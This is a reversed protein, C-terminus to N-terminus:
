ENITIDIEGEIDMMWVKAKVKVTGPETGPPIVLTTLPMGYSNTVGLYDTVYGEGEVTFVVTANDIGRIYHDGITVYIDCSDGTTGSVSPPLAQMAMEGDIVPLIYYFETEVEGGATSAHIGVCEFSSQSPFTLCARSVGKIRTGELEACPYQGGTYAEPNIFALDSRDLTFYVATGNEVPNNYVDRVIAAVAFTYTGDGNVSGEGVNLLISDPPGAAIGIKTTTAAYDGATISLLITGPKTGGNVGISAMGGGTQKVVPGYGNAPSDLYEGGGPGYEITFTVETGNDVPVAHSDFVYAVINATAGTGTGAVSIWATDPDAVITGAAESLIVIGANACYSGCCVRVTALGGGTPSFQATAVGSESLVTPTVIGNGSTVAFTVLTGDAVPNGYVDSIEAVITSFSGGGGAITDPLASAYIRAPVDAIFMAQATATANGCSATVTVESSAVGTPRLEATARGSRTLTMSSINGETTSFRVRTSDPVPTADAFSAYATIQSSNSPTAIVTMPSAKVSVVPDAFAITMSQQISSFGARVTATGPSNTSTLVAKAKGRANTSATKTIVGRSTSFGIEVGSVPTNDETLLTAEVTQSSAGDAVMKGYPASLTLSLQGFSVHTVAEFGGYVVGVAALGPTTGSLLYVNAFGEQDTVAYGGISGLTTGFTVEAGTIPTGSTTEKLWVMVMSASVGDAPIEAPDADVTISVGRTYVNVLEAYDTGDYAIEAQITVTQDGVSPESYYTAEAYGTSDTETTAPYVMGQEPSLSFTVEAGELPFGEGDVLRLYVAATSLGDALISAPYVMLIGEGVQIYTTKPLLDEGSVTIAAVGTMAPAKYTVTATGTGDTAETADISGFSEAVKFRVEHGAVPTGQRDEVVVTIESEEGPEIRAKDVTLSAITYQPPESAIIPDLSGEKEGCQLCALALFPIVLALIKRMRPNM